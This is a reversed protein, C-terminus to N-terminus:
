VLRARVTCTPFRRKNAAMRVLLDVVKAELETYVERFEAALADRKSKLAEYEDYWKARHEREQTERLRQRLRQLASRLWTQMFESARIAEHATKPDPSVLPDFVREQEMKAKEDAAVIATETEDILAAILSSESTDDTLAAGIRQELTTM